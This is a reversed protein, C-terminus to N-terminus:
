VTSRTAMLRYKQHGHAPVKTATLRYFSIAASLPSKRGKPM